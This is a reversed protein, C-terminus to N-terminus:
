IDRGALRWIKLAAAVSWAQWPCGGARQPEDGDYVEAVGGLGCDSVMEDMQEALLQMRLDDPAIKALAEAYPGLLWPWATGTHYASDLERLSGEFRGRYGPEKPGLTRVGRPTILEWECLRLADLAREGFAPGFPLSMAIIQNPRLSADYPEITDFYHGREPCWFKEDFSKQAKDAARKYKQTPQGVKKALWEMIRLANIWLGNIEIPKGHRPTVVWDGIKADMWTLQVGPEGQRLLGDAPDVTIGYMTGKVHAQFVTELWRMAELAFAEDWEANLARFTADVFWLTADATNYDAGRGSELFRNPILGAHMSAAFSRLVEKAFETEGTDLCLNPLSVMSDRGWETFWPYGAIISSRNRGKALFVRAMEKPSWDRDPVDLQPLMRVGDTSAIILAEEGPELSYRLECPCYLDDRPDLGREIERQHEFRYYWGQVPTREANRHAISLSVGNHEVLTENMPFALAQPFGDWEAFNEHHGRCAVLPRLELGLASDGMNRYRVIATNSGEVLALSKSVKVPGAAFEWVVKNPKSEFRILAEYGKPFITGPYQNTSLDATRGRCTARAEIAAFVLKRDEPPDIAAILHGHYRRTQMGCVTGMAYGGIGNTLIWEIRSSRGLDRCFDADFEFRM